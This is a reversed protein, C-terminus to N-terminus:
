TDQEFNEQHTPSDTDRASFHNQYDVSGLIDGKARTEAPIIVFKRQEGHEHTNISSGRASIGIFSMQSLGIIIEIIKLAFKQPWYAV